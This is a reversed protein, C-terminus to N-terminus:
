CFIKVKFEKTLLYICSTVYGDASSAIYRHAIGFNLYKLLHTLYWSGILYGIIQTPVTPIEYLTLFM